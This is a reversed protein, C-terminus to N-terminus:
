GKEEIEPIPCYIDVRVGFPDDVYAFRMPEYMWTDEPQTGGVAGASTFRDYLRDVDGPTAVQIAFETNRPNKHKSPGHKSPFFTLMTSGMKWYRIDEKLSTSPGLVSSYFESAEDYEEFYLSVYNLDVIQIEMDDERSDNLM